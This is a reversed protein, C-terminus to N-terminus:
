PDVGLVYEVGSASRFCDVRGEAEGDALSDIISCGPISRGEEDLLFFIAQRGAILNVSILNTAVAGTAILDGEFSACSTGFLGPTDIPGTCDLAEAERSQVLVTVASAFAVLGVFVRYNM